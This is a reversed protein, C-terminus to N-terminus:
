GLYFDRRAAVFAEITQAPVGTVREVDDSTRDYRNERHLRAMTAIHQETHPPLGAKALVESRWRDLPVDVYSVPRGLARSFEEAMETMDVTRPGTLEYVHGIHPAPDRLVTAVVRAVDDVAIPSTRGTGFPLAITGNDRISRAALTTFLPNDLFATPRVHVVPLGSWDFVQESLWHLRQQDSEGTSTATMQSVTMQSMDVLGDLEGHERAVSAVVTAALLQDPSVPMAFYMRGVGELAAAVTEPRTLDGIVVEAGLVRLEAARADDRRVMVRVPVDQARLQDLVRRGVDGANSLLVLNSAVM